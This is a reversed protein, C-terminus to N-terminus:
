PAVVVEKVGNKQLSKLDEKEAGNSTVLVDIKNPACYNVRSTTELKAHDALMIIKHSQSIIARAVEAEQVDFNTAGYESHLAVPSLVGVDANFRSIDALTLEGYTGPVDSIINGGLLLVKGDYNAHRLTSVIDISNTIVFLDPVKSLEHSFVSTTTGADIMVCQGPKIIKAALRSISRKENLHLDMRKQFPEESAPHPLVAGGHVRKIKGDSELDLLDRRVTERSVGFEDALTDTSVRHHAQLLTMIRQQRDKFWM